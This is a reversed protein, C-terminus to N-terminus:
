GRSQGWLRGLWFILYVQERLTLRGKLTASLAHRAWAVVGRSEPEVDALRRGTAVGSHWTRRRVSSRTLRAPNVRHLIAAGSAYGISRGGTLRFRHFWDAEEGMVQRGGQLGLTADFDGVRGFAERSLLMNGGFPSADEPFADAREDLILEGLQVNFVPDWYAPMPVPGWDVFIPGGAAELGPHEALHGEYAALWGPVPRADDDLYALWRGASAHAGRNRALSLGAKPEELLRVPVQSRAGFDRVGAATNDSCANAVVVIEYSGKVGTQAAAATLCAALLEARNHTCIIVSFDM